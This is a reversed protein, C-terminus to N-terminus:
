EPSSLSFSAPFFKSFNGERDFVAIPIGEDPLNGEEDIAKYEVYCYVKTTTSKLMLEEKHIITYNGDQM